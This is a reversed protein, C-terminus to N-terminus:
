PSSAIVIATLVLYWIVFFGNSKDWLLNMKEQTRNLKTVMNYAMFQPFLIICFAFRMILTVTQIGSPCPHDQDEHFQLLLGIVHGPM